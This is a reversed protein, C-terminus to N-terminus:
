LTATTRVLIPAQVFSGFDLSGTGLSEAEIAVTGVNVGAVLAGTTPDLATVRITWAGNVDVNEPM